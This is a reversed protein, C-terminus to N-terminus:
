FSLEVARALYGRWIQLRDLMRDRGKTFESDVSHSRTKYCKEVSHQTFKVNKVHFWHQRLMKKKEPFCYIWCHSFHLVWSIVVRVSIVLSRSIRGRRTGSEIINSVSRMRPWIHVFPGCRRFRYASMTPLRTGNNRVTPISGSRFAVRM